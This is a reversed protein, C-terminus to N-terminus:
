LEWIHRIIAAKKRSQLSLTCSMSDYYKGIIGQRGRAEKMVEDCSIVENEAGAAVPLGKKQSRVLELMDGGNYYYARLRAMKDAGKRSWGMPRSSMRVSLVHSVHGEASCGCVTDDIVFRARAEEWNSVVYSRCAEVRKHEQETRACGDIRKIASGFARKDGDRLANLLERMGDERTDSLHSVCETLYKWVHFEDLVGSIGALRKRGAKIWAGGDSNLYIKKVKELDYHSDLYDYVEDWLGANDKGEYVGSFYHPNVLRRRRGAKDAAEIGEYVYVLKAFICNSKRGDNGPILDGKVGNSQLAVHDEDADIYLYDVSKKEEPIAEGVKSFDLRHIRNKVSQRSVMDTMSAAEGAKRYSTQVAEQLIMAEADETLREHDDFHLFEDLLYRSEGTEKDRFLTKSFQVMGLSTILEKKDRRVIEYRNRRKLNARIIEDYSEFVEAMISLGLGIVEESIGKVFSAVDDPSGIYRDITKNIKPISKEEFQQISNRM